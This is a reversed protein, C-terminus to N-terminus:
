TLKKGAVQFVFVPEVKHTARKRGVKMEMEALSLMTKSRTPMKSLLLQLPPHKVLTGKEMVMKVFDEALEPYSPVGQINVILWGGEKLCSLCNDLMKGLFGSMWEERTPFRVYSQLPGSGYKEHDFYPPSTFCIDVPCDPVFDECGVQHLSLETDHLDRFDHMIACLGNYTAQEPECAIYRGVHESAMAGLLRGGFGASMDWVTKRGEGDKGFHDYIAKAASPRFNSVSQCASITKISKRIGNPTVYTGIRLRQEIAKMLLDDRMFVDYPSLNKGCKMKVHHPFYPWLAKLGVMSQEIMGDVILPNGQGARTVRLFDKRRSELSHHVYPFGSVRLDDLIERKLKALECEDYDAWFKGDPYKKL